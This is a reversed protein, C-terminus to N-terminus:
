PDTKACFVWMGQSGLSKDGFPAKLLRLSMGGLLPCESCKCMHWPCFVCLSRSFYSPSAYVDLHWGAPSKLPGMFLVNMVRVGM